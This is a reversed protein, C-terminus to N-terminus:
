NENEKFNSDMFDRITNVRTWNDSDAYFVEDLDRLAQLYGHKYGLSYTYGGIAKKAEYKHYSARAKTEIKTAMIVINIM